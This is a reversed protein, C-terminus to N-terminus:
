LSYKFLKVSAGEWHRTQQVIDWSLGYSQLRRSRRGPSPPQWLPKEGSHSNVAGGDQAVSRPVAQGVLGYAKKMALFSRTKFVMEADTEVILASLCLFNIQKIGDWILGLYVPFLTVFLSFM